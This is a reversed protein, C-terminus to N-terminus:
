PNQKVTHVRGSVTVTGIRQVGTGNPAVSYRVTGNGTGSSGSTITIWAVDKVATWTCTPDTTVTIDGTGGPNNFTRGSPLISLPCAGDQNVTFTQGAITMTGSRPSSTPGNAAVSYNVTGNGTGTSGSTITIFAANSAASWMCGGGATVSVSGTGGAIPFNQSTPMITFTLCDVGSQTVTFTNGAITITGMRSGIDGKSAVSYNVTGNGTGAAGSTVTIFGNNSVATWACGPQATVAVSGTGGSATFSQSTPLISFACPAGTQNVTFVQDVVTITASRPTTATNVAVSFNVTGNGTGSAGSTVMVFAANSVATWPCTSTTTVTISGTGGTETFSQNPPAIAFACGGQNVTFVQNVVTITASRPTTSNNVAVSFNVTGSGTGSAGSTVTVFGANSVATWPCTSTTTVTISGTGGAPTFSQNPPAIAFSCGAQTINFIQDQVTITATRPTTSNNVAVSFNVTGSGTGSAGSTITVFGASSVATWQCSGSTTVAISGTGGAPTFSQSPPAISFGCVPACPSFESTDNNALNTATATLFQGGSTAFAFTTSFSANGSANTTVPIEGMLVFGEGNGTGGCFVNIYVEIAFSTNPTSNLSGMVTTSAGANAQALLPFNQRNNAGGDPDALDNPTVGDDGLDIGLGGNGVISNRQIRNGIAATIAIGDDGNWSLSNATAPGVGGVTNGSSLNILVGKGGNGLGFGGVLNQQVLNGAADTDSIFVGEGTNGSIFNGAGIAVGGITHNSTNLIRVGSLANPVAAVRAANLGIYNGQVLTGSISNDNLILVGNAANGSIINREAATLGGLKTLKANVHVGDHVNPVAASGAANTGVYNGQVTNGLLTVGAVDVGNDNNGSIVNRAAATTGGVVNGSVSFVIVGDFNPAAASGASNTGIYCGELHDNGNLIFQVGALSCNNVVLGRVTTSGAAVKLGLGSGTLAGSLTILPTGGFGPQTTGDITVPDNVPPLDATPSITQAGSGIAFSITDAGPNTNSDIIAQRLSGAGSDATNTVTFAMAASQLVATPASQGNRLVVLGNLSSSTMRLPLVAGAGGNVNLTASVLEPVNLQPKGDTATGDSLIQVVNQLQDSVVLSDRSLSSLHAAVLKTAGPWAGAGLRKETWGQLGAGSGSKPGDPYLVHVSGSTSLIGIDIRGDGSFDGTTLAAIPSSFTRQEIVPASVNRRSGEDVYLKRDRGHIILISSASSVVMDEFSDGPTDGSDFQTLAISTAEGSLPFSESPGNLAGRPDEFVLLRNGSRGSIAVALDTLGDKRNLDGAKLATVTGPLVVSSWVSTELGGKDKGPLLFLKDSKFSAVVVDKFGDNNFDGVALFNPEVPCSIAKASRQFPADTFTGQAKRRQADPSNPFISDVNGFMFAVVSGLSNSLGYAIDDSGDDNLDASALSLPNLQNANLVAQAEASGAFSASLDTGLLKIFPEGSRGVTVGSGTGQPKPKTGWAAVSSIVNLSFLGAALLSVLCLSVLLKERRQRSRTSFEILAALIARARRTSM